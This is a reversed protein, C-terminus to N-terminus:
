RRHRDVEHRAVPRRQEDIAREGLVTADVHQDVVDSRHPQTELAEQGGAVLLELPRQLMFKKVVRRADRAAIGAMTSCPPPAITLTAETLANKWGSLPM